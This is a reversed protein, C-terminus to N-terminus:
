GHRTTCDTFGLQVVVFLWPMYFLLLCQWPSSKKTALIFMVIVSHNNHIITEPNRNIIINTHFFGWPMISGVQTDSSHLSIYLPYRHQQGTYMETDGPLARDPLSRDAWRGVDEWPLVYRCFMLEYGSQQWAKLLYMTKAQWVPCFLGTFLPKVKWSLM